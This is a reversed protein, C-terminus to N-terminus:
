GCCCGCLVICLAAAAAGNEVVWRCALLVILQTAAVAANGLVLLQAAAVATNWAVAPVNECFGYDTSCGCRLNWVVILPSAAVVVNGAVVAVTLFTACQTLWLLM